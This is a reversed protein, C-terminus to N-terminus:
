NRTGYTREQKRSAAFNLSNRSERSHRLLSSTVTVKEEEGIEEMGPLSYHSLFTLVAGRPPVMKGGALSTSLCSVHSKSSFNGVKGSSKNKHVFVCCVKGGNQKRAKRHIQRAKESKAPKKLNRPRKRIERAKLFIDRVKESKEPKFQNDRAKKFIAAQARGEEQIQPFQHCAECRPRCLELRWAKRHCHVVALVSLGTALGAAVCVAALVAQEPHHSSSNRHGSLHDEEGSGSCELAALSVATLPQGALHPPEACTAL